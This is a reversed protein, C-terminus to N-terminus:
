PLSKEYFLLKRNELNKSDFRVYGLKEYIHIGIDNDHFVDLWVRTASLRTQCYEEMKIIAAQGIGRHGHDIIIRRFEVSGSQEERVLIFYGCVEGNSNEISLYTIDPDSFYQRHKEIGTPLVFNEAHGQRDMQDFRELEEMNSTRLRIM